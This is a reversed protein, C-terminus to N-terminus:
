NKTVNMEVLAQEFGRMKEQARDGFLVAQAQDYPFASRWDSLETVANYGAWVTRAMKPFQDNFRAYSERAGERWRDRRSKQFEWTTSSKVVRDYQAQNKQALLVLEEATRGDLMGALRPRAPYPYAAELIRELADDGIKTKAMAEFVAKTEERATRISRVIDVGFALLAAPDSVHPIDLRITAMGRGLSLTNQCVTRVPTYFARNVKGPTHNIECVLYDKIEDTGRIAYADGRLAVFVTEGEGLAGCTEIPLESAGQDLIRAVEMNTVVDYKDSCTGFVVPDQKDHQPQRVVANMGPIQVFKKGTHFYAPRTEVLYDLKARIFAEEVTIVEDLAFTEGLSHWAPTARSLFRSDWINAAM